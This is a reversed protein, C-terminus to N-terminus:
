DVLKQIVDNLQKPTLDHTIETDKALLDEVGKIVADRIATLKAHAQKYEDSAHVQNRVKGTNFNMEWDDFEAYTKLARAKNYRISDDDYDFYVVFEVDMPVTILFGEQSIDEMPKLLKRIAKSHEWNLYAVARLVKDQKIPVLHFASPNNDVRVIQYEDSSFPGLTDITKTTQKKKAM